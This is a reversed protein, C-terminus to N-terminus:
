GLMSEILPPVMFISTMIYSLLFFLFILDFSSNELFRRRGGELKVEDRALFLNGIRWSNAKLYDKKLKPTTGKSPTWEWENQFFVPEFHGKRSAKFGM